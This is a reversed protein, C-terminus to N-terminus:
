SGSIGAYWSFTPSDKSSLFALSKPKFQLTSRSCCDGTYSFISSSGTRVESTRWCYMFRSRWHRCSVDVSYSLLLSTPSPPTALNSLLACTSSFFANLDQMTAFSYMRDM